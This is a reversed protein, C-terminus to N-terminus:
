PPNVVADFTLSVVPDGVNFNNITWSLGSGTPSTEDRTDAGSISGPVYSFGSPIIDTVIVDNADNVGINEVLLTFTVTAGVDPSPEDVSKTIELDVLPEMEVGWVLPERATTGPTGTVYTFNTSVGNVVDVSWNEEHSVDRFGSNVDWNPVIFDINSGSSFGVPTAGAGNILDKVSEDDQITASTGVFSVNNINDIGLTSGWSSLSIGTSAFGTVPTITFSVDASSVPDPGGPRLSTNITLRLLPDGTDVSAVENALFELGEGVFVGTFNNAVIEGDAVKVGGDEVDFTARFENVTSASDDISTFDADIYDLTANAEVSVFVCLFLLFTKLHRNKMFKRLMPGSSVPLLWQGGIRRM